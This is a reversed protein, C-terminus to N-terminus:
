LQDMDAPIDFQQFFEESSMNFNQTCYSQISFINDTHRNAARKAVETAKMKAKLMTPDNDKYMQLEKLRESKLSEAAKLQQLLQARNASEERGSTEETIRSDLEDVQKELKDREETLQDM